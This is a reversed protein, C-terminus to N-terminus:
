KDEPEPDLKFEPQLKNDIVVAQGNRLKFVGTTVVTEGAQLGSVVEVFDGRKEGLRVFQQRLVKSAEQGDEAQGADDEVIFVSDSYPAYLVATVPIVLVDKAVPLVIKVDVYMGPRLQEETNRITAQVKINRTTEEVKPNITTIQGEIVKGLLANSTVRVTLGTKLQSLQQQPLLFDVFIPDLAQLTVIENGAELIQGLNVQRIGLRGAFPARITKKAITARLSEAEALAQQYGAVARDMEAQSVAQDALLERTRNLSTRALAVAAEAGPLLAEEATTDQRVLLDGAAVKMGPQFAIHVVKGPLEAAVT